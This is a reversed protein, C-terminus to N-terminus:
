RKEIKFFLTRRKLLKIEGDIKIAKSKGLFESHFGNKKLANQIIPLATHNCNIAYNYDVWVGKIKTELKNAM